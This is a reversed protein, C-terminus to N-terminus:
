TILRKGKYLPNIDRKKIYPMPINPINEKKITKFEEFLAKIEEDNSRGIISFIDRENIYYLDGYLFLGREISLRTIKALLEMMYNDEKSHYLADIQQSIEYVREAVGKDNFGFEDQGKENKYITLAGVIDEIDQKTICKLWGIGTLIIGDLRDACLTPRESDVIPYKKCYMVDKKDIFDQELMHMISADRQIVEATYQETSEQTAYDHNMYDIVHCFCPSAIDHFLGALTKQRNYTFKHVLLAVTISHHYRTIKESFNYVDKSAYDMGCFYGINRLRRLSNSNLYKQMFKPLNLYGLTEMYYDLMIGM